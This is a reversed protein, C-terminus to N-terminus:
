LFSLASGVYSASNSPAGHLSLCSAGCSSGDGWGGGVWAAYTGSKYMWTYDCLYTSESGGSAATPIRGYAGTTSKTIYGSFNSSITTADVYGSGTTNYPGNMKYKVQGSLAMLGAIRKWINGWWNEIYFVKVTSDNTSSGWFQGRKLSTGTNIKASASCVGRGFVTQTNDSKGMIFLLANILTRQSWTGIYWKNSGDTGGNATAYTIENDMTTNVTPVFGSLSRARSNIVSSEYMAIYVNSAISGDSRTHAIPKYNADYPGDSVIIYEYNDDEYMYLYCLPIRSMANGDFASNSIDSSGGNITKTHDYPDLEYAETGDSKLMVPKNDKVFWVNRWSGYDFSGTTYDMKAPTMGVADHIYTIRASPDSNNKEIKIGYRLYGTSGNVDYLKNETVDVYRKVTTNTTKNKITVTWDGFHPVDIIAYGNSQITTSTLTNTIKGDSITVDINLDSCNVRIQASPSSGGSSLSTLINNLKANITGATTSGGTDSTTGVINLITEVQAKTPILVKEGM